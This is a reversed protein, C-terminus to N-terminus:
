KSYSDAKDEMSFFWKRCPLIEIIGHKDTITDEEDYTVIVRRRCPHVNSLKSLAPAAHKKNNVYSLPTKILVYRVFRRLTIFYLEIFCSLIPNISFIYM